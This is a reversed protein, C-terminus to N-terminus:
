EGEGVSFCLRRTFYVLNAGGDLQLLLQDEPIGEDKHEDDM